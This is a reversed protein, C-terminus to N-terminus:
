DFGWVSFLTLRLSPLNSNWQGVEVFAQGNEAVIVPHTEEPRNAASEHMKRARADLHKRGAAM